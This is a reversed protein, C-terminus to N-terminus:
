YKACPIATSVVRWESVRHRADRHLYWLPLENKKQPHQFSYGSGGNPHIKTLPVKKLIDASQFRHRIAGL